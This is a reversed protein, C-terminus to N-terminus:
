FTLKINFGYTKQSPLMFYDLGQSYNGTSSIVEPDFPARCYFLLLNNGTLSLTIDALNKVYKRPIRYSIHVQSLRVNTADYTYYQALRNRGRVSFYDKPNILAGGEYVFGLARADGSAKSVGYHDMAAQTMSVALGGFRASILAGIGFGKYSFENSWGLNAKPLVTGLKQLYDGPFERVTVSGDKAVFIKGDTDRQFDANTYIDGLTGGQTLVYKLTGLSSKTLRDLHEQEGTIPNVYNEALNLIKNSNYGFTVNSAYSFRDENGLNLGLVMELGQNRVKGTQIYIKDYGSGSPVEIEITQNKTITRYLTADFNVRGGFWKSSFGIEYSNTREPYLKGVPYHTQSTYTKSNEDPLYTPSTLGRGFASGVSAYSARIKFYNLVPDIKHKVNQPLMDTIVASLGVSPYFFSSNPSNVLQSAWDNRGTLTLFLYNNYSLEASGFISQTEERWGDPLLHTKPHDQQINFINFVNPFGALPGRVSKADYQMYQFSGGLTANINLSRTDSIQFRKNLTSIVDVYFQLNSIHAEGYYGNDSADRNKDTSAYRKDTDEQATKDYRTRMAINWIEGTGWKKIEYSANYSLIYRERGTERLNRYAIWYPNQLSYNGNGYRWNQVYLNRLADFKEFTRVKDIEESRPMLYAAVLPNFYEGQNVMNRHYQRVYGVNADLLLKDKLLSITNRVNFNYRTYLTNPVLGSSKTSAFSVYTKNNQTGGSVSVSHNEDHAKQFFMEAEYINPYVNHQRPGWSEVDTGSGYQNQFKPLILPTGWQSSYSYGVKIRGSTGKKTTIIIAGNAAASGYLAAASAGTLISVSEIDDPNIDAASETVGVSQFQGAGEKGSLSSFLPVGDIVYLANNSKEISKAGRMIVKAAAGMGSSSSNITIGAVKGSLSNIFNANKHNTLENNKIEQVNYALAKTQRKIGLATIVTEEIM